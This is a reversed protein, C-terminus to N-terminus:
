KIIFKAIKGGPTLLTCKIEIKNYFDCWLSDLDYKNNNICLLFTLYKRNSRECCEEGDKM